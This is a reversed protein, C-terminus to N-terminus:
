INEKENKGMMEKLDNLIQEKEEDTMNEMEEKEEEAKKLLHSWDWLQLGIIEKTKRDRLLTLYSNIWEGYEGEEPEKFTVELIDGEKNEWILPYKIEM